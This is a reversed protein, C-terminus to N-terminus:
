PAPARRNDIPHLMPEARMRELIFDPDSSRLVLKHIPCGVQSTKSITEACMQAIAIAEAETKGKMTVAYASQPDSSGYVKDDVYYRFRYEFTFDREGERRLLAAFWDAQEYTRGGQDRANELPIMWVASVYMGKELAFM